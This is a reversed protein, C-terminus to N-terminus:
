LVVLVEIRVTELCWLRLCHAVVGADSSVPEGIDMARAVLPIVYSEELFKLNIFRFANLKACLSKIDGVVGRICENRIVRIQVDTKRTIPTQGTVPARGADGFILQPM